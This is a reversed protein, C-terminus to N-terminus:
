GGRKMLQIDTLEQTLRLIREHLEKVHSFSVIIDPSPNDSSDISYKSPLILSDKRWQKLTRESIM